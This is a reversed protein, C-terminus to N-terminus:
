PTPWSWYAGDANKWGYPPQKPSFHATWTASCSSTTHRPFPPSSALLQQSSTWEAPVKLEDLALDTPGKCYSPFPQELHLTHLEPDWCSVSISCIKSRHLTANSSSAFQSLEFILATSSQHHLLTCYTGSALVQSRHTTLIPPLQLPTYHPPTGHLAAFKWLLLFAAILM